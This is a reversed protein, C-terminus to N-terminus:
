INKPSYKNRIKSMKQQFMKPILNTMLEKQILRNVVKKLNKTLSKKYKIPITCTVLSVRFVKSALWTMTPTLNETKVQSVKTDKCIAVTLVIKVSFITLKFWVEVFNKFTRNGLISLIPETMIRQVEGVEMLNMMQNEQNM